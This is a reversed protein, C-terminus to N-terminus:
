VGMIGGISEVGEKDAIVTMSEDLSYEREDLAIIKEGKKAKRVELDGFIKDADFVHLPRNQDYTLYNTIDVLTSIPRLGISRLRDQLWKPSVENKVNKFYRGIFM